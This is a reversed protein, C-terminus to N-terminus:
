SPKSMANYTDLIGQVAAKADPSSVNNELLTLVQTAVGAEVQHSQLWSTIVTDYKTGNPLSQLLTRLTEVEQALAASTSVQKNGRLYSWGGFLALIIGSAITGIGPAFANIVAAGGQVASVTTPSTSLSYTQNTALVQNTQWATQVLTNTVFMPVLQGVQNTVTFTQYITNTQYVPVGINQVVVQYNTVTTFITKELATPAAPNAGFLSCGTLICALLAISFLSAITFSKTEKM